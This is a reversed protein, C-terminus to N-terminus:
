EQKARKIVELQGVWETFEKGDDMTVQAIKVGKELSMNSVKGQFGKMILHRVRDGIHPLGGEEITSESPQDPYIEKDM